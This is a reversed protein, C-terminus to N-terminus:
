RKLTNNQKQKQKQKIKTKNQKKSKQRHGTDQTGLVTLTEPNDM